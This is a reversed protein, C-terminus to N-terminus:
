TIRFQIVNSCDIEKYIKCSYRQSYRGNNKFNTAGSRSSRLGFPNSGGTSVMVGYPM